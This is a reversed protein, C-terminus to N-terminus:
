HDGVISKGLKRGAGLFTQQEARRQATAMELKTPHSKLWSIM